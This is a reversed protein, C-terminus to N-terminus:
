ALRRGLMVVHKGNWETEALHVFGNRLYFGVNRMGKGTVVHIGPAGRAAAHQVFAQVLAAGVGVSRYQSAVNIHLHAPYTATLGAFAGFYSLDAHRPDQAPDNLAGVVYGACRGEATLAVFADEQNMHLYSGLWKDHFARRAVESPFSRTGSAEFFIQDLDERIAHSFGSEQLGTINILEHDM